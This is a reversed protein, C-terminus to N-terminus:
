LLVQDMWPKDSIMDKVELQMKRVKQHWIPEVAVPHSGCSASSKLIKDVATDKVSAAICYASKAVSSSGADHLPRLESEEEGFASFALLLATASLAM